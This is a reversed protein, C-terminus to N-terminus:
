ARYPQTRNHTSHPVGILLRVLQALKAAAPSLARGKLTIIAVQRTMKPQVILMQSTEPLPYDSLVVSPLVAAGLGASAMSILTQAQNFEYRTTLTLNAANATDEILMRLATAQNLLLLPLRALEEMTITDVAEPLLKKPVLAYLDETLVPEFNFDQADSMPGIGFDVEGKRISEHMDGSTLERIFLESAPYDHDFASLIKALRTAPSM